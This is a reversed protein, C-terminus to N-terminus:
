RSTTSIPNGASRPCSTATAWPPTASASQLVSRPLRSRRAADTAMVFGSGAEKAAAAACLGRIGPGLVAVVDGAATGPVTAGWRIGAGLPNFLTAVVPDPGAPVRLVASDPALYQHDAYGGLEDNESVLPVPFQRVIFRRVSELVLARAV